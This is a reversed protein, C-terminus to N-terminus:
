KSLAEPWNKDASKIFDPINAEWKKQVDADYNLYLKDDVIKWRMPDGSATYGQAVAWACYGGYQPAYHEPNSVFKERNEASSFRWEAGKYTTTIKSDGKVPKKETFYAVTDYGGLAVKSFLATYIPPEKAQAPLCWIGMLCIAAALAKFFTRYM